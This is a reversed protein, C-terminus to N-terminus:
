TTSRPKVTIVTAPVIGSAPSTTLTCGLDTGPTCAPLNPTIQQTDKLTTTSIYHIADDGSTSVFFLSNDPSFAGAVPATVQSGNTLTIYGLTGLQDNPGATQQYYPLTAGATTGNYLLFTLSTTAVSTGTKVAPPSSVLANLSTANINVPTQTLTHAITLPSLTGDSGVSCQTTPITVGIDSLTVGGGSEAAGIIHAGDTTSALVDTPTNVLDGQPYFILDAYDGSTGQPCWTHAVTSSGNLYAGVSPVTLTLNEAGGTASLDYTTWGSNVNYVYLTNSHGAGSSASDVVYLTKSDPTWAARTGMGGFTSSVTGAVAGYLYFVQRQQDNILVTQNNPSVALVVGPVTTDQKSIGNSSTTYVMLERSSGFYLSTGTQDMVMSNPVYPLRVTSGTTGTLLEVPVFYQSQGPAGFWMYSSATGPVTIDVPNSSISLGTGSGVGIENIPAPNCTAPQCIAYVSAAGPYSATVAGTSTANIELPNTSQYDLTLGTITNGNTDVVTTTLNQQVGQTVTGSTSGNALALSISKPPCTSFYGASAGSGAVSGTIATTGPLNATIQNTDPNITAVSTTGVTYNLVGIASSCVPVSTVGPALGDKCSYSTSSLTSPACLEYQKNNAGAYCAESDLQEVTGKSFCQQAGNLQGNLTLSISTVPAHVYVEVPNSTVSEASATIFETIYPLGSTDPTPSPPNCITYDPIGGGSNRNWFGACINGTPSIDVYRRLTDTSGYTYSGVSVTDGKCTKATPTGIQRTQGFAISIGTTRPELDISYLDSNKLGYGEGNCYNGAPNRVCGSLTIGAPMAVCVFLVLALYRRM